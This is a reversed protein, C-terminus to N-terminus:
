ESKLLLLLPRMLQSSALEMRIVASNHCGEVVNVSLDIQLGSAADVWTAIPVKAPIVHMTNKVAYQKLLSSLPRLLALQALRRASVQQAYPVAPIFVVLDVDSTPLTLGTMTSGIVHVQAAPWQTRISSITRQVASHRKYDEAPDPAVANALCIIQRHLLATQM